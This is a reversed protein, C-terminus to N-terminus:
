QGAYDHWLADRGARPAHISIDSGGHPHRGQQDRGARPAHISITHRPLLVQLQATAGRVPRTSQFQLVVGQRQVILTAGRVPRTSQFIPLPKGIYFGRTAGRVPRTSQFKNM